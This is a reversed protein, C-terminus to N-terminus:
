TQPVALTGVYAPQAPNTANVLYVSPINIQLTSDYIQEYYGLYTITQGQFTGTVSFANGTASGTMTFTTNDTGQLALSLTLTNVSKEAVTATVTDTFDQQPNSCTASALPCMQGAYTGSLKAVQTGTITGGPDSCANGAQPTYTGNLISKGDGSLTATVNFVSGNETFSFSVPVGGATVTGALGNTVTSTALCEGGFGTANLNQSVTGLSVFAIQTGSATIQGDPQEVGNVLVQGETLAVEIGTLSGNNSLAVFEWPGAINPIAPPTVSSKSGGCGLLAGCVVALVISVVARVSRPM